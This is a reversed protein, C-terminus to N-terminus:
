VKMEIKGEINVLNVNQLFKVFLFFRPLFNTSNWIQNTAQSCSDVPARDHVYAAWSTSTELRVLASAEPLYSAATKRSHSSSLANVSDELSEFNWQAFRYPHFVNDVLRSFLVLSGSLVM